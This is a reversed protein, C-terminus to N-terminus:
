THPLCYSTFGIHRTNYSNAFHYTSRGISIFNYFNYLIITYLHEAMYYNTTFTTKYYYQLYHPWIFLFYMFPDHVPSSQHLQSSLPFTPVLGIVFTRTYSSVESDVLQAALRSGLGLEAGM